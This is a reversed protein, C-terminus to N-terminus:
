VPNTRVAREAAEILRSSAGTRRLEDVTAQSVIRPGRGEQSKRRADSSDSWISARDKDGAM